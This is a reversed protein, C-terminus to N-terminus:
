GEELFCVDDIILPSGSFHLVAIQNLEIGNFGDDHQATRVVLFLRLLENGTVDHTLVHCLQDTRFNEGLQLQIVDHIVLANQQDAVVAGTFRM